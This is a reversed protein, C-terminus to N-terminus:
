EQNIRLDGRAWCDIREISDRRACAPPVSTTAGRCHLPPSCPPFLELPLLLRRLTSPSLDVAQIHGAEPPPNCRVYSYEYTFCFSGRRIRSSCKRPRRVAFALSTGRHYTRRRLAVKARDASADNLFHPLDWFAGWNSTPNMLKNRRGLGEPILGALRALSLDGTILQICSGLAFRRGRAVFPAAPHPRVACSDLHSKCDNNERVFFRRV